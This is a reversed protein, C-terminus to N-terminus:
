LVFRGLDSVIGPFRGHPRGRLCIGGSAPQRRLALTPAPPRDRSLVIALLALILATDTAALILKFFIPAETAYRTCFVFLFRAIVGIGLIMAFASREGIKEPFLRFMAISLLFAAPFLLMFHNPSRGLPGSAALVAMVALWALCSVFFLLGPKVRM